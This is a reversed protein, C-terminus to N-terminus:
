RLQRDRALVQRAEDSMMRRANWRPWVVYIFVLFAVIVGLGIAQVVGSGDRFPISILRILIFAMLVGFPAKSRLSRMLETSLAGRPDIKGANVYHDAAAKTDGLLQASMGLVQHATANNPERNVAEHAWSSAQLADDALIAAKARINYGSASEPDLRIAEAGHRDAERVIQSGKLAKRPIGPPISGLWADALMVHTMVDDPNLSLAHNLIAKAEDSRGAKHTAWGLTRQTAYNEPRLVVARRAADVADDYRGAQCLATSLLVNLQVSEPNTALGQRALAAADAYKRLQMLAGVRDALNPENTM